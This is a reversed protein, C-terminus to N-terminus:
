YERLFGTDLMLMMTLWQNLFREDKLGLPLVMVTRPGAAILRPEGATAFERLMPGRISQYNEARRRVIPAAVRADEAKEYVLAFVMTHTTGDDQLGGGILSYPPLREAGAVPTASPLPIGSKDRNAYHNLPKDLYASVVPNLAFALADYDPNTLISPTRGARVDITTEAYKTLANSILADGELVVRGFRGQLNLRETIPDNADFRVNDAGYAYITGERYQSPTRKAAILAQAIRDKEFRGEMRAWASERALTRDVQWFDYGVTARWGAEDALPSFATVESPLALAGVVQRFLILQDANLSAISTTGTFRYNSLQQKLNAFAIASQVPAAASMQEAAVTALMRGLDTGASLFQAPTSTAPGASAGPTGSGPAAPRATPSALGSAVPSAAGGFGPTTSNAVTPPASAASSAATPNPGPSPSPAGGCAGLLLGGCVTTLTQLMQRRSYYRGQIAPQM